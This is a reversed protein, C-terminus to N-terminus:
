ASLVKVFREAMSRISFNKEVYARGTHGLRQRLSADTILKELATAFREVDGVDFLLGTEGDVVMEPFAGSRAAVVPLSYGAAEAITMGFAENIAPAVVIDLERYIDDRSGVFGSWEVIDQLDLERILIRVEQAYPDDDTGIIRVRFADSLRRKKLTDIARILATHQKQPSVRGVIGLTVPQHRRGFADTAPLHVGNPVVTIKGREAGANSASAAVFESVCVIRDLRGNILEISPFTRLSGADTHQYLVNRLRPLILSGLLLLQSEPYVAVQPQFEGVLQRQRLSAGPQNRLSDL